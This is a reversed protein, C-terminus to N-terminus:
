TEEETVDNCFTQELKEFLRKNEAKLEENQQKITCYDLGDCMLCKNTVQELLEANEAELQELKEILEKVTLCGDQPCFQNPQNEPDTMIQKLAAVQQRSVNLWCALNAFSVDPTFGNERLIQENRNIEKVKETELQEIKESLESIHALLDPVAHIALEVTPLVSSKSDPNDLVYKVMNQIESLKEPTM